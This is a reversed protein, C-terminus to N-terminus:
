SRPTRAAASPQPTACPAIEKRHPDRHSPKIPGPFTMGGPRGTRCPHRSALSLDLHRLRVRRRRVRRGDNAHNRCTRDGLTRGCTAVSASSTGDIRIAAPRLGLRQAGATRPHQTPPAHRVERRARSAAQATVVERAHQDAVSTSRRSLPREGASSVQAGSGRRPDEPPRARVMVHTSRAPTASATASRTGRSGPSQHAPGAIATASSEQRGVLACRKGINHETADHGPRMAASTPGSISVPVSRLRSTDSNAHSTRALRLREGQRPPRVGAM